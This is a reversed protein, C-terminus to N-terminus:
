PLEGAHDYSGGFHAVVRGQAIARVAAFVCVPM